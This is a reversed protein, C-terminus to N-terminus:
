KAANTTEWTLRSAERNFEWLYPRKKIARIDDARLAQMYPAKLAYRSIFQGRHLYLKRCSIGTVPCVFLPYRGGNHLSRYRITVVQERAQGLFWFALRAVAIYRTRDTQVTLNATEDGRNWEIVGTQIADARFLGIHQCATVSLTLYTEIPYAM